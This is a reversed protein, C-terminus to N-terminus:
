VENVFVETDEEEPEESEEKVESYQEGSFVKIRNLKTASTTFKNFMTKLKSINPNKYDTVVIFDMMSLSFEGQPIMEPTMEYVTLVPRYQCLTTVQMLKTKRVELAKAPKGKKGDNFLGSKDFSIGDKVWNAGKGMRLSIENSVPPVDIVGQSEWKLSNVNYRFRFPSTRVLKMSMTYNKDPKLGSIFYKLSPFIKRGVVSVKMENGEDYLSKWLSIPDNLWVKIGSVMGRTQPVELLGPNSYTAPLGEASTSHSLARLLNLTAVAAPSPAPEKPPEPEKPKQEELKAAKGEAIMQLLLQQYTDEKQINENPSSTSANLPNEATM